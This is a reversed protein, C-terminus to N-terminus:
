FILFAMQGHEMCSSDTETWEFWGDGRCQVDLPVETETRTRVDELSASPLWELDVRRFDVGCTPIPSHSALLFSPRTMTLASVHGSIGDPSATM